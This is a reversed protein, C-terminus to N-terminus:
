FQIHGAPLHCGGSPPFFSFEQQFRRMKTQERLGRISSSKSSNILLFHLTSIEWLSGSSSLDAARLWADTLHLHDPPWNSGKVRKDCKRGREKEEKELTVTKESSIEQNGDGESRFAARRSRDVPSCRPQLSHRTNLEAKWLHMRAASSCINFVTWSGCRDASRAKSIHYPRRSSCRFVPLLTRNSQGSIFWHKKNDPWHLMSASIQFSDVELWLPPM